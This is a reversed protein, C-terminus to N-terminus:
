YTLKAQKHHIELGPPLMKRKRRKVSHIESMEYKPLPGIVRTVFETNYTRYIKAAEDALGKKSFEFSLPYRTKGSFYWEAAVKIIVTEDVGEPGCLDLIFGRIQKDSANDVVALVHHTRHQILTIFPYGDYEPPHDEIILPVSTQKSTKKKQQM